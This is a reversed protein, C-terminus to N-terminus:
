RANRGLWARWEATGSAFANLDAHGEIGPVIGTGSYQWFTWTQDGYRASPHGAVSRIWFQYGGLRALENTEYFDPTTYVIPTQGYHRAVAELFVRMEARVEAPPPRRTCTPSFPNWEADLVPPLAGREAPVNRIFWAAQEAAPRCFYIFHYAGRPIGAERTGAWNRGFAEDLRDGGETAKLFAFSVGAARAAAWDVRGQFRSADTGHVPLERPSAGAAWLHPDADGFAPPLVANERLDAGGGGCAALALCLAPILLPRM